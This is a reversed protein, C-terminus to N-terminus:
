RVLTQVSPFGLLGASSTRSDSVLADTRADALMAPCVRFPARTGDRPHRSIHCITTRAGLWGTHPQALGSANNTPGVTAGAAILGFPATRALASGELTMIVAIASTWRRINSCLLLRNM